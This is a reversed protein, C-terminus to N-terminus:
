LEELAALLQGFCQDWYMIAGDFGNILHEFDARTRIADPMTDPVSSKRPGAFYHLDLASRPGYVEAHADITEQDPWAPAP